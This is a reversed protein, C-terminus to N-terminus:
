KRQNRRVAARAQRMFNFAIFGGGFVVFLVLATLVPPWDSSSTPHAGLLAGAQFLVARSYRPGVDGPQPRPQPLDVKDVPRQAVLINLASRHGHSV